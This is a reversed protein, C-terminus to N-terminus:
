ERELMNVLDVTQRYVVFGGDHENDTNVMPAPSYKASNQDQEKTNNSYKDLDDIVTNIHETSAPILVSTGTSSVASPPPSQAPDDANEQQAERLYPGYHFDEVYLFLVLVHRTGRSIAHGAHKM